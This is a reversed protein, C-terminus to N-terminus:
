CMAGACEAEYDTYDYFNINTWRLRWPFRWSQFPAWRFRWPRLDPHGPEETRLRDRRLEAFRELKYSYVVRSAVLRDPRRERRSWKKAAKKANKGPREAVMEPGECVAAVATGRARQMLLLGSCISVPLLADVPSCCHRHAFQELWFM